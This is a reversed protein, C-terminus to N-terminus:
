YRVQSLNIGFDINRDPRLSLLNTPFLDAFERVVLVSNLPRTDASADRVYSLYYLCGQCVVVIYIGYIYVRHLRLLHRFWKVVLVGVVHNLGVSVVRAIPGKHTGGNAEGHIGEITGILASTQAEDRVQHGVSTSRM